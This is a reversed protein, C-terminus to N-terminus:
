NRFIYPEHPYERPNGQAHADFSMPSQRRRSNKAIETAVDEFVECIRWATIHSSISGRTSRCIIAFHIVKFSRSRSNWSLIRKRDSIRSDSRKFTLFLVVEAIRRHETCSWNALRPLCACSVRQKEATASSRTRDICWVVRKRVLFHRKSDRQHIKVNVGNEGWFKFIQM